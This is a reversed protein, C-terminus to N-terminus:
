RAYDEYDQDNISEVVQGELHFTSKILDIIVSDSIVIEPAYIVFTNTLKSYVVRGRPFHNYEFAFEKLDGNSHEICRKVSKWHSEHKISATIYDDVEFGETYPLSFYELKMDPFVWFIGVASVGDAEAKYIRDWRAHYEKNHRALSEDVKNSWIPLSAAFVEDLWISINRVAERSAMESFTPQEMVDLDETHITYKDACLDENEPDVLFEIDYELDYITPYSTAFISDALGDISGYCELIIPYVCSHAIEKLEEQISLKSDLSPEIELKALVNDLQWEYEECSFKSLFTHQFEALVVFRMLVIRREIANVFGAYGAAVLKKWVHRIWDDDCCGNDAVTEWTVVGVLNSLELIEDLFWGFLVEIKPLQDTLQHDGDLLHLETHHEQAFHISNDVPVVDDNLGHVVVIKKANPVPSQDKYGPLYFAPAMLFLGVPNIIHSAVTAVYGGMSSGVLVTLDSSPLKLNLLQEVRADPDPQGSYDPSEVNFGKSLAIAALAKIKTGWPGSEKGHAFYVNM